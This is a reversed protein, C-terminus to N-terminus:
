VRRDRVYGFSMNGASDPIAFANAALVLESYAAPKQLCVITGSKSQHWSVDKGPKRSGFVVTFCYLAGDHDQADTKHFSM